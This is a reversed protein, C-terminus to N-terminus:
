HIGYKSKLEEKTMLIYEAPIKFEEASVSKKEVSSVTYKMTIESTKIQFEMLFGDIDKFLPNDFNGDKSGIESTYWVEYATKVGDQDTTVIAKKCKYGAITKTKRTIKVNAQPAKEMDKQIEAPTLKMACKQGEMLRFLHIKSKDAYDKIEIDKGLIEYDMETKSKSGKIMVSMVMQDESSKSTSYTIKYTIIGEFPDGDAFVLTPSIYYLITAIFFIKFSTKM